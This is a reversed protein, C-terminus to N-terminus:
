PGTITLKVTGKVTAKGLDTVTLTQAGASDLTVTFSAQGNDSPAFTYDAPLNAIAPPATSSFHITGLYTPDPKGFADLATVTVTFATGSPVQNSSVTLGFHTTAYITFPSSATTIASGAHAILTYGQGPKSVTLATFTALGTSNTLATAGALVARSPNNSLALAARVGAGVPNGFADEIQVTVAPKIPTVAFTNAPQSAFAVQAAAGPKVQIGGQEGSTCGAASVTLSQPGATKLIPDSFTHVGADGTVFAYDAPLAANGDSSVFHVTGTFGTAINNYPDRATVTVKFASGATVTTPASIFLQSAAAPQVIVMNTGSPGHVLPPDTVTITRQGATLLTVEGPFTHIGNDGPAFTYDAPLSVGKAPDNSTLHVMGQFSTAVNGFPDLATVTLDFPTGATAPAATVKLHSAAAAVVTISGSGTATGSHALIDRSGATRLTVTFRHEGYDAATFRYAAPLTAAGDTSTLSVSGRYGTVIRGEADLPTVVVHFAKGATATFPVMSVRFHTAPLPTELLTVTGSNSNVVALDPSGDGNLDAATVWTPRDGVVYGTAPNFTGIGTGGFVFVDDSFNNVTAIDLKHDGNFDAVAIGIPRSDTSYAGALRFAGTGGNLLVSLQSSAGSGFFTPIALDLKHDGNFDGVGVSSPGVETKYSTAAGFSGNGNGFLVSVTNSPGNVVALDEKHDGNFDGTAVYTAAGGASVSTASGFTGNGNGLLISVGGSSSSDAVALDLIGDGNFDDVAVWAPSTGAPYLQPTGFTGNGTGLLISVGDASAVALDMIHNGAFDGIALATPQSIAPTLIPAAFEGNGLGPFIYVGSYSPSTSIVALDPIGDGTFDAEVSPGPGPVVLDPSALLTGDGNGLLLSVSGAPALFPGSNATVVDPIGDGNFDGVALAVPSEGATYVHSAGFTGDGNGMLVSVSNDAFQGNATVIDQIGDGNLDAVALTIPTQGGLNYNKFPQFTGNSNGLLISVGDGSPFNCAVALDPQGDHNFDAVVVSNAVFGTDYNVPQAFTGDGNNLNVDIHNFGGGVTAIDDFGDHNFDAVAVSTPNNVVTLTGGSTFKGTGDGPLLTVTSAGNDAVALDIHHDGNFDGYALAVPSPGAPYNVALSFNGNGLGRLVSVTNDDKNAAVLDLKGDGNLDVALIADPRKGVFINRAPQFTGNGNGLLVSLDNSGKNATVVDLKVDGNFDGTAIAVPNGGLTSTAGSSFLPAAVFSPLNRDELRELHLPQGSL